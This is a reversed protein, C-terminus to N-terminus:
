GFVPLTSGLKALMEDWEGEETSLSTIAGGAGVNWTDRQERGTCNGTTTTSDIDYRFASRIVVSFDGGGGIDMYGVVGSYIGRPREEEIERLLACSRRKPAGTMSGPPLSAALVDIGTKSTLTENPSTSSYPHAFSASPSTSSLPTMPRSSGPSTNSSATLSPPETLHVMPNILTGEVVTVLQFVTAYEEVVMLKPVCVNGSGVVGHLDHRILDVIMLNEAREKPASLLTTAQELTIAPNKPGNPHRKVTGKIPRFQVTSRTEGGINTTSTSPRSWCMFREPSSSLLTMGGLRMYASFPAANLSRLRLYLPWPDHVHSTNIMIRNTLCLEYSNGNHISEQCKRIKAKYSSQNPYSTIADLSPLPEELSATLNSTLESTSKQVWQHDDERISQIHIQQRQHDVVVSREVFVFSIDPKGDSAGAQIDITELGAEYNIYGVLGGWFPLNPDGRTARQSKMFAKLYDFVTGGYRDLSILDHHGYQRANINSNGISYDLQMTEKGIIGIISHTGVDPRQHPESDLVVIDRDQAKLVECIQPVSIGALPLVRSSVQRAANPLAQADMRPLVNSPNEVAPLDRDPEISLGHLAELDIPPESPKIATAVTQYDGGTAGRLRHRENWQRAEFWWNMVIQQCGENSCISEPHFQLGYFPKDPHKVAMLIKDPNFSHEAVQTSDGNTAQFDWALPELKQALDSSEVTPDLRTYLSHYQVPAISGIGKFISADNHTVKRTIGHRPAPLRRISGGFAAVLSQFGLCIGLVPLVDSGSLQWLKSILGVDDRSEPHGPGPGAVVADFDRLFAAFEPIVDDIKITTIHVAPLKSELLSIINNSFSDYADIFLIRWPFIRQM